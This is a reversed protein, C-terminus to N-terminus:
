LFDMYVSKMQDANVAERRDNFDAVLYKQTESNRSITRTPFRSLPHACPQIAHSCSNLVPAIYHPSPHWPSPDWVSKWIRPLCLNSHYGLEFVITVCTIKIDKRMTIWICLLKLLIPNTASESCITRLTSWTWSSDSQSPRKSILSLSDHSYQYSWVSFCSSFSVDLIAIAGWSCVRRNMGTHASTTM